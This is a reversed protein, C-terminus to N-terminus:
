LPAVGTIKSLVQKLINIQELWADHQTQEIAFGGSGIVLHGLIEAPSTEIFNAISDAYYERRM